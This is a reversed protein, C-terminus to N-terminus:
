FPTNTRPLTNRQFTNSEGNIVLTIATIASVAAHNRSVPCTSCIHVTKGKTCIHAHDGDSSITRLGDYVVDMKTLSPLIYSFLDFANM